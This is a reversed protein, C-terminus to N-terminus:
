DFVARGGLLETLRATSRIFTKIVVVRTYEGEQRREVERVRVTRANRNINKLLRDASDPSHVKFTFRKAIEGTAELEDLAQEFGELLAQGLAASRSHDHQRLGLERMSLGMRVISRIYYEGPLEMELPADSRAAEITAHPTVYKLRVGPGPPKMVIGEGGEADLDLMIAKLRAVDSARFRGYLPARPLGFRAFFQERRDLDLYDPRGVQMFDFAFLAVDQRVRPSIADIYPNDPGAVEACLVLEPREAWMTLAARIDLLDPLRDCTFPCVVGSRTFAVLRDEIPVIRVNYGDIKEEAYFEGDFHRDLGRELAFIRGIHPYGPIIRDGLIVTGRPVGHYDDSYCLYRMGLDDRKKVCHAKRAAEIQAPSPIM